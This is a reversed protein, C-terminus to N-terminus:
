WNPKDSSLSYNRPRRELQQLYTFEKEKLVKLIQPLREWDLSDRFFILDSQEGMLPKRLLPTELPVRQSQSQSPIPPPFDRQLKRYALEYNIRAKANEPHKRLAHRFQKLAATYDKQQIEIYGLNNRAEAVWTDPLLHLSKEFYLQASDWRRGELFIQGLNFYIKGQQNPLKNLASRMYQESLALSGIQFATESDQFLTSRSQLFLTSLLIYVLFRM